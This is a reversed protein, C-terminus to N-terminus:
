LLCKIILSNNVIIFLLCRCRLAHRIGEGLFTVRHGQGKVKFILLTGSERLSLATADLKLETIPLKRDEPHSSRCIHYRLVSTLAQAQYSNGTSWEMPGTSCTLLLFGHDPLDFNYATCGDHRLKRGSGTELLAQCVHIIGRIIQVHRQKIFM